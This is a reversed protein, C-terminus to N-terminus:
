ALFKLKEHSPPFRNPDNWLIVLHFGLHSNPCSKSRTESRKNLVREPLSLLCGSYILEDLENLQEITLDNCRTWLVIPIGEDNIIMKLIKNKESCCGLMAGIRKKLQIRLHEADWEDIQHIFEFDDKDPISNLKNIASKWKLRLAQEEAVQFLQATEAERRNMKKKARKTSRDLSRLIVRFSTGIPYIRQESKKSLDFVIWQDINNTDLLKEELFVEIALNNTDLNDSYFDKKDKLLLFLTEGIILSFIEKLEDMSLDIENTNVFGQTMSQNIRQLLNLSVYNLLCKRTLELDENESVNKGNLLYDLNFISFIYSFNIKYFEGLQYNKKTVETDYILWPSDPVLWAQVSFRNEKYTEEIWIFLRPELLSQSESTSIPPQKFRYTELWTKIEGNIAKDVYEDKTLHFAFEAIRPIGYRPNYKDLRKLVQDVAKITLAYHRESRPLTKRCADQIAFFKDAEEESDILKELINKLKEWAELTISPINSFLSNQVFYNFDQIGRQNLEKLLQKDEKLERLLEEDNYLNYKVILIALEIGKDTGLDEKWVIHLISGLSSFKTNKTNLGRALAQDILIKADLRSAGDWVIEQQWKKPLDARAALNKFYDKQTQALDALIDVLLEIDKLEMQTALM